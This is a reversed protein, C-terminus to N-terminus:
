LRGTKVISELREILHDLTIENKIFQGAITGRDIVIIRDVVSYVHFINHDIFIASKGRQKIDQIFQLCKTTESLSLGMTPEDLIILDADFHLARTIAVGQKEGGSFMGVLSNSTIAKSTFGMDDLMLKDTIKKMAKIDLLGNKTIERGMFINRWVSHQECLAREQHVVEIGLKRTQQVSLNNISREKWLMEGCDPEYYGAIIKVLTTKGSGNDGVLGVIENDDVYINIDSLAQVNGFSKSINNLRLLMITNPALIEGLGM